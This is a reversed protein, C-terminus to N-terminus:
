GILKARLFGICTCQIICNLVFNGVPRVPLNHFADPGWRGVSSDKRRTALIHHDLHSRIAYVAVFFHSKLLQESVVVDSRPASIVLDHVDMWVQGRPNEIFTIIDAANCNVYHIMEGLARVVVELTHIIVHIRTSTLYIVIGILHNEVPDHSHVSETDRM